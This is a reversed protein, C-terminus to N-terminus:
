SLMLVVLFKNQIHKISSLMSVAVNFMRIGVLSIEDIVVLQLQEYQCTFRNLSDSSLNPLNFLSQQVNINLTSHIILSNFAVKSTSTMILVKTKTLNSYMNINYLQLLGQIILKLTIKKGIGVGRQLFYVYRHILIFNNEICLVM